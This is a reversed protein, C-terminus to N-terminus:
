RSPRGELVTGDSGIARVSGQGVHLALTRCYHSVDNGLRVHDWRGGWSARRWLVALRSAGAWADGEEDVVVTSLDSRTWSAESIVRDGGEIRHIHGGPGVAIAAGRPLAALSGLTARTRASVRLEEKSILVLDSANTALFSGSTLRTVARLRALGEIEAYNRFADGDFFLVVGPNRGAADPKELREGVFLVRPGDACAAALHLTPFPLAFVDVQGGPAMRVLTGVKGFLYLSGDPGLLAHTHRHPDFTGPLDVARWASGKWARLGQGGSGVGFAVQGDASFAAHYLNGGEGAPALCRWSWKGTPDAGDMPNARARPVPPAMPPAAPAPAAVSLRGRRPAGPDQLVQFTQTVPVGEEPEALGAGDVACVAVTINDQGGRENATFVLSEAIQHLPEGTGLAACLEDDSLKNSLGDSCVLFRDGKRLELRGLAVNVDPELGMAQLIVNKHPFSKAAEAALVGTDVLLQVYSQDRTMQRLRGDRLLYARSDGVQAIFVARGLFYLATMTAGMGKQGPAQAAEWVKRNVQAVVKEIRAPDISGPEELSERLLNVVLTSAIEGAARGGMGDSVVVLGGRKTIDICTAEKAPPAPPKALDSILFADENNGRVRGTDTRGVVVLSISGPNRSSPQARPEM